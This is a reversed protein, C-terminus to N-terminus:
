RFTEGLCSRVQQLLQMLLADLHPLIHVVCRSIVRWEAEEVPVVLHAFQEAVLEAGQAARSDM